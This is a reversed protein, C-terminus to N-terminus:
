VAPHLRAVEGSTNQWLNAGGPRSRNSQHGGSFLLRPRQRREKRRRRSPVSLIACPHRGGRKSTHARERRSGTVHEALQQLVALSVFSAPSRDVVINDTAPPLWGFCRGSDDFRLTGREHRPQPSQTRPSLYTGEPTSCSSFTQTGTSDGRRPSPMVDCVKRFFTMFTRLM